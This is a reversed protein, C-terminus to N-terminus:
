QVQYLTATRVEASAIALIHSDPSFAIKGVAGAESYGPPTLMRYLRLFEGTRAAWLAVVGGGDAAILHGDPSFTVANASFTGGTLGIEYESGKARLVRPPGAGALDRVAVGEFPSSSSTLLSKGDPSVAAANMPADYYYTRLNKGSRADWLQVVGLHGAAAYFRNDSNGGTTVLLRADPSFAVSTVPMAAPLLHVLKGSALSWMHIASPIPKRNLLMGAIAITSGAPSIAVQANKEWGALYYGRTPKLDKVWQGNHANWLIGRGGQCGAGAIYSGTPAFTLPTAFTGCRPMDAIPVTEQLTGTATDWTRLYADDNTTAVTDDDLFGINTVVPYGYVTSWVLMRPAPNRPRLFVVATVAIGIALLVLPGLGYVLKKQM